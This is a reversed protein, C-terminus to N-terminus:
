ATSSRRQSSAKGMRAMHAREANKARRAREAPELLGDPDVQKEWRSMLRAGADAAFKAREADSTQSWRAHAAARASLSRQAPTLRSM